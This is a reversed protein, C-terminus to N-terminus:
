VVKWYFQLMSLGSLDAVECKAPFVHDLLFPNDQNVILCSVEFYTFKGNCVKAILQNYIVDPLYALTTGSDIIAGKSIDTDFIGSPLNLESDGVEIGKM